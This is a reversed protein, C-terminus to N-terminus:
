SPVRFAGTPIQRLMPQTKGAPMHKTGQRLCLAKQPVTGNLLLHSAFPAYPGRAKQPM